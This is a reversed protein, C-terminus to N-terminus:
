SQSAKRKTPIQHISYVLLGFVNIDCANSQSDPIMSFFCSFSGEPTVYKCNFVLLSTSSKSDYNEM